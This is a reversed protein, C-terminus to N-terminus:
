YLIEQSNIKRSVYSSIGSFELHKPHRCLISVRTRRLIPSSENTSLIRVLLAFPHGLTRHISLRLKRERFDDCRSSWAHSGPPADAPLGRPCVDTMALRCTHRVYSSARTLKRFSSSASTGRGVRVNVEIRCRSM